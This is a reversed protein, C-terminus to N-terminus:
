TKITIFWDVAKAYTLNYVIVGDDHLIIYGNLPCRRLVGIIDIYLYNIIICLITFIIKYEIMYKYFEAFVNTYVTTM